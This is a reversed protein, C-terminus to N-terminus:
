EDAVLRATLVIEPIGALARSVPCVQKAKDAHAQFQQEDVGTVRGETDLNIRALTPAGDINRLQVRASTRLSEPAHGAASLINALAMTFCSAHAAAILQEPNTGKGEGFRSDYSYAGEFIGDGVTVTGSGSEVNGHWEASGNRATMKAERARETLGQGEMVM